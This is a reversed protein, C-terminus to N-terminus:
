WTPNRDITADPNCALRMCINNGRCPARRATYVCPSCSIREYHIQDLAGALARLLTEPDSPGWYSTVPTGLLRAFHLIASDVCLMERLQAIQRLSEALPRLGAQNKVCAGPVEARLRTALEDLPAREFEGGLLHFEEGGASVKRRVIEVWESPRLMREKRLESCTPALGIVACVGSGREEPVGLGRRFQRSCEELDPVTAGFLRAAQDYSEYIRGSPNSFLLHTSLNCRRSSDGTYFGVRQRACTMLCFVNSLRSHIEFDVIADCHFLRAIARVSSLLLRVATQDEVLIIEDFIGLVRVFPEVAPTTVIRLRHIHGARRLGLLAPYAIALSGGGHLKIFTISSCGSLDRRRRLVKGLLVALPKFLLRLLTGAYLDAVRQFHLTMSVRHYDATVAHCFEAIDFRTWSTRYSRRVRAPLRPM